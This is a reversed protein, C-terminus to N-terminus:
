RCFLAACHVFGTVCYFMLETCGVLGEERGREGWRERFCDGGGGGLVVRRVVELCGKGRAPEAGCIFRLRQGGSLSRVGLGHCGGSQLVVGQVMLVMPVHHFFLGGCLPM